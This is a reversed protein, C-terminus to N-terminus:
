AASSYSGLWLFSLTLVEGWSPEASAEPVIFECARRETYDSSSAPKVQGSAPGLM